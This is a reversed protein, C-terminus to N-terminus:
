NGWRPQYDCYTNSTLQRVDTGDVRMIFIECSSLDKEAVNTYATFAIWNGDPSISAGQSNMGKPSIQHLNTGDENMLYVEHAFPGGQDLSILGNASWDSRGRTDIKDNLLQPEGGNIDITYLQNNEGKGMAFLIQEGNSSWTGDHVDKGSKSYFKHPDSGDKNMLWLELTSSDDPKYHFIIYNNDPSIEPSGINKGFNTLQISDGTNVDLEHIETYKGNSIVYVAEQGNPSLNANFSAYESNTLQRWGSGDPNIICIESGKIECTFIIKGTPENTTSPQTPTETVTEENPTTNINAQTETSPKNTINGLNILRSAVFFLGSICTIAVLAILGPIIYKKIDIKSIDFSAPKQNQIARGVSTIGLYNKLTDALYDLGNEFNKRLDVRQHSSLRLPISDNEDGRIHVPFIRKNNEEAFSIERRVWESSASGPSLLVVIGSSNRISREIEREWAPTGPILNEIDVWVNVGRERLERVIREQMAKDERSYSIFFFPTASSSM